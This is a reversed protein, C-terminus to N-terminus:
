WLQAGEQSPPKLRRFDIWLDFIGAACVLVALVPQVITVFYILGRALPPM